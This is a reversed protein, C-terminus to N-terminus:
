ELAFFLASVFFFVVFVKLVGAEDEVCLVNRRRIGGGSRWANGPSSPDGSRGPLRRGEACSRRWGAGRVVVGAQDVAAGGGPDEFALEVMERVGAQPLRAGCGRLAAIALPAASGGRFEVPAGVASSLFAAWLLWEPWAAEGEAGGALM